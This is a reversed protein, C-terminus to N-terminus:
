GHECSKAAGLLASLADMGAARGAPRRRPDSGSRQGRRIQHWLSRDTPCYRSTQDTTAAVGLCRELEKTPGKDGRSWAKDKPGPFTPHIIQKFAVATAAGSPTKQWAGFAQGALSGLAIVADVSRGMLLADLWQHRYAAIAPDARHREGGHQGYVSYLFTNVMVYRQTIGLKALFGQIRQGAEGVLIRRVVAEHAGPDQGFVLVVAGGDLRGRHFVPGWETRFDPNPYTDAGPFNAVLADFPALSYGPDFQHGGNSM